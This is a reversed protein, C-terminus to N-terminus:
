SLYDKNITNQIQKIIHMFIYYVIIFFLAFGVLLLPAVTWNPSFNIDKPVLNPIYLFDPLSQKQLCGILNIFWSLSVGVAFCCAYIISNQYLPTSKIGWIHNIFLNDKTYISLMMALIFVAVCVGLLLTQVFLAWISFDSLKNWYSTNEGLSSIVAQENTLPTIYTKNGTFQLKTTQDIGLGLLSMLYSHNIFVTDNFTKIPIDVITAQINSLEVKNDKHFIHLSVSNDKTFYNELNKGVVIQNTNLLELINSFQSLNGQISKIPIYKKTPTTTKSSNTIIASIEGYTEYSAMYSLQNENFINFSDVPLSFSPPSFGFSTYEHYSESTLTYRGFFNQRWYNNRGERAFNTNVYQHSILCGLLAICTIILFRYETNPTTNPYKMCLLLAGNSIIGLIIGLPISNLYPLRASFSYTLPLNYEPYFPMTFYSSDFPISLQVFALTILIALITSYVLRMICSTFFQLIPIQRKIFGNRYAYSDLKQQNLTSYHYLFFVFGLLIYILYICQHIIKKISNLQGIQYDLYSDVRKINHKFLDNDLTSEVLHLLPSALFRVHYRQHKSDVINSISSNHIYIGYNNYFFDVPEFIYEVTLNSLTEDLSPIYFSMNSGVDVGLKKSLHSSIHLQNSSITKETAFVNTDNDEIVTIYVPSNDYLAKLTSRTTIGRTYKHDKLKTIEDPTTDWWSELSYTDQSKSISWHSNYNQSINKQINNQIGEVISLSIFAFALLISSFLLVSINTKFPLQLSNKPIKYKKM